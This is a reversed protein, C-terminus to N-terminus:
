KYLVRNQISKALSIPDTYNIDIGVSIGTALTTIKINYNKLSKFLFNATIDGETNPSFAFIIETLTDKKESVKKLFKDINLHKPTIGELPNILGGLVFYLGKYVGTEEIMLQSDFDEVVCIKTKDRNDDKCISCLDNNEEAITCCEKCIKLNNALNQLVNSFELIENKGKKILSITLRFATRKGIGPLKSFENVANEFYRPIKM